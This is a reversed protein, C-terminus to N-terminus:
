FIIRLQTILSSDNRKEANEKRVELHGLRDRLPGFGCRDPECQVAMDTEKELIELSLEKSSCLCEEVRVALSVHQLPLIDKHSPVTM